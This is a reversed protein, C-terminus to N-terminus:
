VGSEGFQHTEEVVPYTMIEISDNSWSIVRGDMMIMTRGKNSEDPFLVLIVSTLDPDKTLVRFDIKRLQGPTITQV